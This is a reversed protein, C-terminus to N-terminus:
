ENRLVMPVFLDYMEVPEVGLRVAWADYKGSGPRVPTGWDGDEIWSQGVVYVNAGDAAVGYGDEENDGGLFTNWQLAGSTNLQAVFADDDDGHPHVPKGWTDDSQGAVFAPRM